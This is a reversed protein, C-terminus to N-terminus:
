GKHTSVLHKVQRRVRTGQRLSTPEFGPGSYEEDVDDDEEGSSNDGDSQHRLPPVTDGDDNVGDGGNFTEQKVRNQTRVPLFPDDGILDIM